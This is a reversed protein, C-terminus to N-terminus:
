RRSREAGEAGGLRAAVEAQGVVAVLAARAGDLSATVEPHEALVTAPEVRAARQLVDAWSQLRLAYASRADRLGDHWPVVTLGALRRQPDAVRPQWRAADRALSEYAAGRAGDTVDAGTLLRSSYQALGALSAQSGRVASEGDTVVALLRDTERASQWRDGAFGLVLLVLVLGVVTRTRRSTAQAGIVEDIM